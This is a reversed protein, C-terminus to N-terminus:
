EELVRRKRPPLQHYVTRAGEDLVRDFKQDAYARQRSAEKREQDFGEWPRSNTRRLDDRRASRSSIVKGSAPSVYPPIDDNVFAPCIVIQMTEGHCKPANRREDVIRFGEEERGCARCGWRYIPM